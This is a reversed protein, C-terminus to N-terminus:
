VPHVYQLLISIVEIKSGTKYVVLMLNFLRDVVYEESITLGYFTGNVREYCIFLLTGELRNCYLKLRDVM